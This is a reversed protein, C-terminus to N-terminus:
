LGAQGAFYALAIVVVLAIVVDEFLDWAMAQCIEL